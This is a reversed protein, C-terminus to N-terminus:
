RQQDGATIAWAREEWNSARSVIPRPPQTPIPAVPQPRQHM